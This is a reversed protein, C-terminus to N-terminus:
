GRKRALLYASVNESHEGSPKKHFAKGNEERYELIEWSAYLEKLENPKPFFRGKADEKARFFDGDATFTAIANLGGVSTFEQLCHILRRAERDLLHHLVFFILIVGYPNILEIDRVDQTKATISLNLARAKHTLQEVAVPSLDIATVDFGHQALWLANRGYGSGVDLVTGSTKYQLIHEVLTDPKTGFIEGGTAYLNDYGAM